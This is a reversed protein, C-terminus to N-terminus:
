VVHGDVSTTGVSKDSADQSDRHSPNVETNQKHKGQETFATFGATNRAKLRAM